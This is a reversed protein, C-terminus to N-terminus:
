RLDHNGGEQRGAVYVLAEAGAIRRGDWFQVYATQEYGHGCCANKVQAPPLEGICADHGDDRNPRRCHGCPRQPAEATPHGTDAYVWRGSADLVIPHGRHVDPTPGSGDDEVLRAIAIGPQNHTKVDSM